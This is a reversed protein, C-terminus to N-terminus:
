IWRDMSDRLFYKLKSIMSISCLLYFRQLSEEDDEEFYNRRNVVPLINVRNLDRCRSVLNTVSSFSIKIFIM